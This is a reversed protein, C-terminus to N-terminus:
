KCLIRSPGKSFIFLVSIVTSPDFCLVSIMADMIFINKFKQIKIEEGKVFLYPQLPGWSHPKGSMIRILIIDKLGLCVYMFVSACTYFKFVDRCGWDTM